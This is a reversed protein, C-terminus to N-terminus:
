KKESSQSSDKLADQWAKKPKILESVFDLYVEQDTRDYCAILSAIHKIGESKRVPDNAFQESFTETKFVIYDVQKNSYELFLERTTFTSDPDQKEPLLVVSVHFQNKILIEANRDTARLGAADGDFILTVKNTYNKLLKAQAHTLATGCTAVTNEIGIDHMRLVDSYGEVIFAREEKSIAFRAVNLAYLENGKTYICSEPTNLYKIKTNENLDRGAFAITQGRSNSVPFILRNRFFDYVGQDNGKLVGIEELIETKLGVKRAHTLLANGNPAFGINFNGNEPIALNRDKIYYQVEKQNVQEQFFKEVISCAIRLSEEHKFQAENWDSNKRWKFGVNLIKAGIEVAEKFDVKEHEKIFEIADGGQGCGFCKFIGKAPNVSLSATKESHFPCCAKYNSGAKKVKIFNEVVSLIHHNVQEIVRNADM